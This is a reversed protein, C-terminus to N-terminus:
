YRLQILPNSGGDETDAPYHSPRVPCVCLVALCGARVDRETNAVEGPTGRRSLLIRGVRLCSCTFSNLCKLTSFFLNWQGICILFHEILSSTLYYSREITYALPFVSLGFQVFVFCFLCFVLVFCLVQIVGFLAPNHVFNM